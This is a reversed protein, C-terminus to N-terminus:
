KGSKAYRALLADWVIGMKEVLRHDDKEMLLMGVLVADVGAADPHKNQHFDMDHVLAAVQALGPEKLEHERVVVEFTCLEGQHGFKVSPMDFPTADKPLAEGSAVFSFKVKPDIFRRILWATSTRDVHPRARTVWHM